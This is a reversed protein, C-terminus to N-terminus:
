EQIIWPDTLDGSGSAILVSNKLSIVPRVGYGYYVDYDDYSGETNVLREFAYPDKFQFPSLEWWSTGTKWLSVFNPNNREEDQLLGFGM